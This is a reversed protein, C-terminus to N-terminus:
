ARMKTQKKEFFRKTNRKNICLFSVWSCNSSQTAPQDAPHHDRGCHHLLLVPISQQPCPWRPRGAPDGLFSGEVWVTSQLCESFRVRSHFSPSPALAREQRQLSIWPRGPCRCCVRHRFHPARVGLLLAVAAVLQYGGCEGSVKM